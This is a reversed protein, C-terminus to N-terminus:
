PLGGVWLKPPEKSYLLLTQQLESYTVLLNLQVSPVQLIPARPLFLSLIFPTFLSLKLLVHLSHGYYPLCSSSPLWSSKIRRGDRPYTSSMICLASTLQPLLLCAWMTQVSSWLQTDCERLFKRSEKQKGIIEGTDLRQQLLQNYLVKVNLCYGKNCYILNLM